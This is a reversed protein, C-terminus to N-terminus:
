RRRAAALAFVGASVAIGAAIPSLLGFGQGGSAFHVLAAAPLALAMSRLMDAQRARPSFLGALLPM